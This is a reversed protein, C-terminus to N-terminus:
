KRGLLYPGWLNWMMRAPELVCIYKLAFRFGYEGSIFFDAAHGYYGYFASMISFGALTVANAITARLILSTNSGSKINENSFAPSSNFFEELTFKAAPIAFLGYSWVAMVISQNNPNERFLQLRTSGHPNM